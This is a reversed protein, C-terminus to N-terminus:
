PQATGVAHVIIDQKVNKILNLIATRDRVDIEHHHFGPSSESLRKQNWRTDGQLGFFVAHQKNDPGHVQYGKQSFYVCVESGVLGSSGTVLLKKM